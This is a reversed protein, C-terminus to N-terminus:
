AGAKLRFVAYLFDGTEKDNITQVECVNELAQSFPSGYTGPVYLGRKAAEDFLCKTYVGKCDHKRFFAKIYNECAKVFDETTRFNM